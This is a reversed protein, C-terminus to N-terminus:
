CNREQRALTDVPVLSFKAVGMPGADFVQTWMGAAPVACGWVKQWERRAEQKGGGVHSLESGAEQVAMHLIARLPAM